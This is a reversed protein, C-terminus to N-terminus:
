ADADVQLWGGYALKGLHPQCFIQLTDTIGRLAEAVEVLM